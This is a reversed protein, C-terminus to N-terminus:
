QHVSPEFLYNEMVYLDSFGMNRYLNEGMKSGYLTVPLEGFKSSEFIGIENLMRAYGKRRYEPLTVVSHIMIVGADIFYGSISVPIGNVYGVFWGERQPKGLRNQMYSDFFKISQDSMNFGIQLLKLFDKIRSDSEVNAIRLEPLSQSYQFKSRDLVMGSYALAAKKLGLNKLTNEVMEPNFTHAGIFWSAPCQLDTFHKLIQQIESNINASNSNFRFVLNLFSDAYGTVFGASVQDEWFLADKIDDIYRFSNVFNSEMKKSLDLKQEALKQDSM